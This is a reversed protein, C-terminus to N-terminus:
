WKEFIMVRRPPIYSESIYGGRLLQALKVANIRDTKVKAQAIIRTKAPNALIVQNKPNRSLMEYAHYWTSSSEIVM